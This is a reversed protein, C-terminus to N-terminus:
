PPGGYDFDVTVPAAKPRTIKFEIKYPGSGSPFDFYNGYTTVNDTRISKLKKRSAALGLPTVTARVDADEIHAGTKEDTLSVVLHHSKRFAKLRPTKSQSVEKSPLVGYTVEMGNVVKSGQAHSPSIGTAFLFLVPLLFHFFRRM